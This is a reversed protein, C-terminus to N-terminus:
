RQKRNGAIDKLAISQFNTKNNVVHDCQPESPDGINERCCKDAIDDTKEQVIQM